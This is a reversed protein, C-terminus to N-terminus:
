EASAPEGATAGVLERDASKNTDVRVGPGMTTALTASRIYKGKSSAPKARVIEDIVASYNDLLKDDDFSAKGIAMHVIAQRDTRYEVKGSKSEAVAKEIDETVTGVRPNPMKGSPGLIRGLQGVVPMMDPTALAVDFDTWGDQVKEALDQAGVFDAGAAEADRAKAGQAFVAVTVDKGLGHPLALTGRLQEDAHRVNVGLLVHLEVTEDFKASATEKILAIAEAPAYLSDRQVKGYQMRFRKGHAM